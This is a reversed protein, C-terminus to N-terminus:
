GRGWDFDFYDFEFDVLTLEVRSEFDFYDFEFDVLTLEVRSGRLNNRHQRKTQVTMELVLRYLFRSIPIEDLAFIQYELVSIYSM